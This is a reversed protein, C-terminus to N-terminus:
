TVVANEKVICVAIQNAGADRMHEALLTGPGAGAFPGEESASFLLFLVGQLTNPSETLWVDKHNPRGCFDKIHEIQRTERHACGTRHMHSVRLRRQGAYRRISHM